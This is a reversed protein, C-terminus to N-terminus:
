FRIAFETVTADPTSETWTFSSVRAHRPGTALFDKMQDIADRNGQAFVEVSGDALNRVWGTLGMRQAAERTRYRFGVGQVVGSVQAKIARMTDAM